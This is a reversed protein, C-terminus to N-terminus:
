IRNIESLAEIEQRIITNIHTKMKDACKKMNKGVIERVQKFFVERNKDMLKTVKKKRLAVKLILPSLKIEKSRKKLRPRGYYALTCLGMAAGTGGIVVGIPGTMILATGTGGCYAATISAVASAILIGVTDAIYNYCDSIDLGEFSNIRNIAIAGSDGALNNKPFYRVGGEEFWETVRYEITEWLTLGLGDMHTKITAKLEPEYATMISYINKELEAIAGGNNGFNYFAKSIRNTYLEATVERSIANLRTEIAEDIETEIEQRFFDEIGTGLKQCMIQSEKQLSPLLSLGEAVAAYPRTCALISRNDVKLTEKVIDAVFPWQSSGGCLIICGVDRNSIHKTELGECLVTRFQEVLNHERGLIEDYIGTKTSGQKLFTTFSEGAQYRSARDLFAEWTLGDIRGYSPLRWRCKDNRDRSMTQSFREKFERAEFSLNYYEDGASRMAELAGPNEELFWQFFLDDFLRGGLLMDGWSAEVDMGRMYAFDSTGGGFDIVLVGEETMGPSIDKQYLHYLLAGVPEDVLRVNGYGANQAITKLKRRFEDDSGSPAGVIVKRGKPCFDYRNQKADKRVQDLFHEAADAAKDVVSIEPKFHTILDVNERDDDELEGWEQVATDGVIPNSGDRYLIATSLGDRGSKFQIPEPRLEGSLCRCFYSNSTGFDIALVHEDTM